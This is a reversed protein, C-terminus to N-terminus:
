RLFRKARGPIGQPIRLAIVSRMRGLGQLKLERGLSRRALAFFSKLRQDIPHFLHFDRSFIHLPIQIDAFVARNRVGAEAQAELPSNHIDAADGIDAVHNWKGSHWSPRLELLM